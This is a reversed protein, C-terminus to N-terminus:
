PKVRGSASKRARAAVMCFALGALLLSLHELLNLWEGAPGGVGEVITFTEAAVICGYGALLWNRSSLLPPRSLMLMLLPAVIVVISLDIVENLQLQM